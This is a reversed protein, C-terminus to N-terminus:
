FGYLLKSRVVVEGALQQVLNLVIFIVMSPTGNQHLLPLDPSLNYFKLQYDALRLCVVVDKFM